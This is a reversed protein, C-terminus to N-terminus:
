VFFVSCIWIMQDMCVALCVGPRSRWCAAASSASATKKFRKESYQQWWSCNKEKLFMAVLQGKEKDFRGLTLYHDLAAKKMADGAKAGSKIAMVFASFDSKKVHSVDETPVGDVVVAADKKPSMASVSTNCCTKLSM